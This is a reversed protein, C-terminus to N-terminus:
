RRNPPIVSKKFNRPNNLYEDQYGGGARRYQDMWLAECGALLWIGILIACLTLFTKWYYCASCLLMWFMLLPMLVFGVLLITMDQRLTFKM